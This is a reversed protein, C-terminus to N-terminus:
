VACATLKYEQQTQTKIVKNHLYTTLKSKTDM